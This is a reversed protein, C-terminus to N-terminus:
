PVNVYHVGVQGYFLLFHVKQLLISPGPSCWALHFLDALSLCVGYLEVWIHFKIFLCSVLSIPVSGYISLLVVALTPSTLLHLSQDFLFFSEQVHVVTHHNRLSPSILASFPLPFFICYLNFLYIFLYFQFLSESIWSNKLLYIPMFQDSIVYLIWCLKYNCFM